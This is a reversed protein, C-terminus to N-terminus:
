YFALVGNWLIWSCLIMEWLFALLFFELEIKVFFILTLCLAIVADQFHQIIRLGLYIRTSDICGLLWVREELM